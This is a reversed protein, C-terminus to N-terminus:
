NEPYLDQLYYKSLTESELNIKGEKYLALADVFMIAVQLNTFMPIGFDAATRRVIYNNAIQTSESNPLNIVLDVIGSKLTDEITNGGEEPKNPDLNPWPLEKAPVGSENLFKATQETALINFGM